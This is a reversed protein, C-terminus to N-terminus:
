ALEPGALAFIHTGGEVAAATGRLMRMFGRPASAGQSVLWQRLMGHQDPRRPRPGPLTPSRVRALALGLRMSQVIPGIHGRPPWRPRSLARSIRRWWGRSDFCPERSYDRM